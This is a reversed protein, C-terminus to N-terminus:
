KSFRSPFTIGFLVPNPTSRISTNIVKVLANCRPILCLIILISKSSISICSINIITHFCTFTCCTCVCCTCTVHLEAHVHVTFTSYMIM